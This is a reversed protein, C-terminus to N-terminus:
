GDEKEDLQAHIARIQDNIEQYTDVELDLMEDRIEELQARKESLDPSKSTGNSSGPNTISLTAEIEQLTSFGVEDLEERLTELRELVLMLSYDESSGEDINEIEEDAM